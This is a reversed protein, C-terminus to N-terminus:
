ILKGSIFKAQWGNESLLLTLAFVQQSRLCSARLSRRWASVVQRYIIGRHVCQNNFDYQRRKIM